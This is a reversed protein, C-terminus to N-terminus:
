AEVMEVITEDSGYCEGCLLVAGPKAWANQNCDPCTYKTKSSKSGNKAAPASEWALPAFGTAKLAKYAQQYAGDPIISHTVSQGTEGGGNVAVPQLGIQKMREAWEKNHYGTRPATGKAQQWVHAMEHALTSLIEEDTRGTFCDPNLALEDVKGDGNRSSFKMAHFYGKSHAKRQLTVLVQPLQNNFLTGNFYDYADQFAKYQPTTVPTHTDKMEFGSNGGESTPLAPNHNMERQAELVMRELGDAGQTGTANSQTSAEGDQVGESAGLQPVRVSHLDREEHHTTEDFLSRERCLGLQRATEETITISEGRRNTLRVM